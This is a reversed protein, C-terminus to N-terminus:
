TPQWLGVDGGGDGAGSGHGDRKNSGILAELFAVPPWPRCHKIHTARPEFGSEASLLQSAKFLKGSWTRGKKM